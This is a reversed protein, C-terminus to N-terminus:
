RLLLPTTPPGDGQSHGLTGRRALTLVRGIIGGTERYLRGLEVPDDTGALGAVLSAFEAGPSLPALPLPDFRMEVALVRALERSGVLVM